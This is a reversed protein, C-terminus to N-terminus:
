SALFHPLPLVWEAFFLLLNFLSGDGWSPLRNLGLLGPALDRKGLLLRKNGTLFVQSHEMVM